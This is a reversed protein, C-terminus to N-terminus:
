LLISTSGGRRSTKQTRSGSSGCASLISDTQQEFNSRWTDIGFQPHFTFKNACGVHYIHQFFGDPIVVNDQLSPDILNRGSHGQLARLYLIAGSSDTCYQHRKKNGGGRAISNKWKEDSWHHCYLFHKELNEKIRWIEIARWSRLLMTYVQNGDSDHYWKKEDQDSQLIMFYFDGLTGSRNGREM